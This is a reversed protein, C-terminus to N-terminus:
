TYTNRYFDDNMPKTQKITNVLWKSQRYTDTIANLNERILFLGNSCVDDCSSLLYSYQGNKKSQFCKNTTNHLNNIYVKKTKLEKDAIDCHVKVHHTIIVHSEFSFSFRCKDLNLVLLQAKKRALVKLVFCVLFHEASISSQKSILFFVNLLYFFCRYKFRVKSYVAWKGYM